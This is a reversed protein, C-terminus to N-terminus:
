ALTWEFWLVSAPEFNFRANCTHGLCLHQSEDFLAERKYERVERLVFIFVFASLCITLLVIIDIRSAFSYLPEIRSKISIPQQYVDHGFHRLREIVNISIWAIYVLAIAVISKLKLSLPPSQFFILWLPLAGMIVFNEKSGAAIVIGATVLLCSLVSWGGKKDAFIFGIMTLTVGLVDYIEAPGLRAFIDSWYPRSLEFALFGFTM